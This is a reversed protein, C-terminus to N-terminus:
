LSKNKFQKIQWLVGKEFAIREQSENPKPYAKTAAAFVEIPDEEIKEPEQIDLKDMIRKLKALEIDHSYNIANMLNLYYLKDAETDENVWLQIRRFLKKLFNFM